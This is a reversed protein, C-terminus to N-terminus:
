ELCVVVVVNREKMKVGNDADEKPMEKIVSSVQESKAKVKEKSGSVRKRKRKSRTDSM